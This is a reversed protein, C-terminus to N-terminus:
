KLTGGMQMCTGKSVYKWENPDKDKKAEGACAHSGTKSACDNKGAMAVGYCKEKDAAHAPFSVTTTATALAATLMLLNKNM